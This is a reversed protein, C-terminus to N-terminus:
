LHLGRIIDSNRKALLKDLNSLFQMENYAKGIHSEKLHELVKSRVVQEAQWCWLISALKSPDEVWQLYESSSMGLAEALTDYERPCDVFWKSIDNSTCEGNLYSEKFTKM